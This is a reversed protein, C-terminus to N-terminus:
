EKVPEITVTSVTEITIPKEALNAMARVTESLTYEIYEEEETQDKVIIEKGDLSIKIKKVAKYKTM